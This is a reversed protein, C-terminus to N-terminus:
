VVSKRDIYIYYRVKLRAETQKASELQSQKYELEDKMNAVDTSGPLATRGLADKLRRLDGLLTM